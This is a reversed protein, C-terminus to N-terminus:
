AAGNLKNAITAIYKGQHFAQENEIEYPQRSSDGAFTGADYLAEVKVKEMEFMCAGFTYGIPVFIMQHHFDMVSTSESRDHLIDQGKSPFDMISASECESRGELVFPNCRGSDPNYEVLTNNNLEGSSDTQKKLVEVKEEVSSTSFSKIQAIALKCFLCLM